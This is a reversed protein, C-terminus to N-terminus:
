KPERVSIFESISEETCEDLIRSPVGLEMLREQLKERVLRRNTRSVISVSVGQLDISTAGLRKFEDFLEGAAVARQSELAKIQSHLNVYEEALHRLRDQARIQKVTVKNM